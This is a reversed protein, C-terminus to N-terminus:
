TFLLPLKALSNSVVLAVMEAYMESDDVNEIMNKVFKLIVGVVSEKVNNNILTLMLAKVNAFNNYYLFDYLKVDNSWYAIIEM